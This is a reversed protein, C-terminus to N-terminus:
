SFKKYEGAASQSYQRQTALSVDQIQQQKQGNNNVDSKYCM